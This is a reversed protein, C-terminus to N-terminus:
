DTTRDQDASEDGFYLQYFSEADKVSMEKLIIKIHDGDSKMVEM